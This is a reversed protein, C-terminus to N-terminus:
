RVQVTERGEIWAGPIEQGSKLAEKLEKKRAKYEVRTERYQEPLEQPSQVMVSESNRLYITRSNGKVKKIGHRHMAQYLYDRFREQARELAKRRNRIKEEQDKLLQIQSKAKDQAFAIGDVKDAEAQALEGLYSLARDELAQAEDQDMDETELEALADIVQECEQWIDTISPM